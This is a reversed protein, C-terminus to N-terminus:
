NKTIKPKQRGYISFFLLLFIIDSVCIIIIFFVQISVCYVLIRISLPKPGARSYTCDYVVNMYKANFFILVM